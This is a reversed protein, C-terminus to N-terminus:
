ANQRRCNCPEAGETQATESEVVEDVGL